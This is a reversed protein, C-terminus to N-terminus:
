FYATDRLDLLPMGPNSSMGQRMLPSLEEGQPQFGTPLAFGQTQLVIDFRLDLSVM